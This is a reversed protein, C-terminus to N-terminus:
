QITVKARYIRDRTNVQFFYNGKPTNGLDFVVDKGKSINIIRNEIIKGLMDTVIIEASRVLEPMEITVTGSAPNPFVNLRDTGTPVAGVAAYCDGHSIVTVIHEAAVLGCSNTVSYSITVAGAALGTVNGAADVSVNGNNASWIGGSVADALNITEGECVVTPGTISGADALQNVTVPKSVSATGCTATADTYIVSDVGASVGLLSGGSSIAALGYRTSWVGSTAPNTMTVVHDVCVSSPGSITGPDPLNMIILPRLAITSGCANSMAYEITDLGAALANVIGTTPGIVALSTNTSSWVGGPAYATLTASTGECMDRPVPFSVLAPLPDITMAFTAQCGNPLTYFVVDTPTGLGTVIGTTSGVSINIYGTSWVGGAISSSLTTTGLVCVHHSGSIVPVPDVTVTAVQSCTTSTVTYSINATGASIGNVLGASVFAIGTSGSSWVGGTSSCSLLTTSGVCVNLTGVIAAPAPRVTVTTGVACGAGTTYTIPATGAAVGTVVGTTSGLSIASSSTAWTGGSPTSSLNMSANECVFTPGSIASPLANVTFPMAAFCGTGLSYTIVATGGAVGSVLGTSSGVSAIGPASSTWTGGGADTLTTTFGVCLHNAGAIPSPTSAVTFSKTSVCGSPMSYSITTVGVSMANLLGASGISAISPAGSSWSGGPTANTLTATLGPCLASIGYISSLPNVTISRTVYCTSGFTYTITLTGAAVGTVIGSSSGVTAIGPTGSVWTGGPVSNTLTIAQGACVTSAGTISSPSPNVTVVTTSNLSGCSGVAVTYTITATGAAIGSVIGSSSGVTAIGTAGSTWIGGSYISTLNRTYGVCVPSNGAIPGANTPCLVLVGNGINYGPTHVVSSTGTGAFSSGGAGGGYGGCGGGFFGGGGGGSYTASHFTANSGQGVSATSVGFATADDGPTTQTGGTPNYLMGTSTTSSNYYGNEGILNGGAGGRDHDAGFSAGGGGGGGAVVVRNTTTYTGVTSATLRIDSAGGGGGGYYHGTGGGNYGGATPCPCGNAGKGGIFIYLVQGPTVALIGQVRGGYGGRSVTASSSGGAAGQLDFILSTSGPPVTYTYSGPVIYSVQAYAFIQLLLCITLLSAKFSYLLKM